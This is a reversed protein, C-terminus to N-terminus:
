LRRLPFGSRYVSLPANSVTSCRSLSLTSSRIFGPAGKGIRAVLEEKLKYNTMATSAARYGDDAVRAGGLKFKEWLAGKNETSVDANDDELRITAQVPRTDVREWEGATYLLPLQEDTAGQLDEVRIDFRFDEEVAAAGNLNIKRTTGRVHAIIQHLPATLAHNHYLSLIHAPASSGLHQHAQPHLPPASRAFFQDGFRSQLRCVLTNATKGDIRACIKFAQLVQFPYLFPSSARNSTASRTRPSPPAISEQLM